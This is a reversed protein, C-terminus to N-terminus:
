ASEKQLFVDRICRQADMIGIVGRNVSIVKDVDFYSGFTVISDMLKNKTAELGHDLTEWELTKADRMEQDRVYAENSEM